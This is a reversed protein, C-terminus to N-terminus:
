LEGKAVRACFDTTREDAPYFCEIRLEELTVDRPGAFTTITEFFRLQGVPSRYVLTLVPSIESDVDRFRWHSPVGPYALIEKLLQRSDHDSPSAAIEEHLHRIYWGAIDTWNVIVPRFDEPDFVNHLMNKHRLPRGGMVSSIIRAGAQNRLLIEWHRNIVFAPYPEQHRLILEIAETMRELATTDLPTESFQPAFGAALMLRNHERLPMGLAHALRAVTERSAQSKGTEVCSLHRASIGAELALDLQSMRRTARWEKLLAGIPPHSSDIAAGM